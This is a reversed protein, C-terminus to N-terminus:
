GAQSQQRQEHINTVKSDTPLLDLLMDRCKIAENTHDKVVAKIIAPDSMANAAQQIIKERSPVEDTASDLDEPSLDPYIKSVDYKIANVQAQTLTAPQNPFLEYEKGCECTETIPEGLVSMRLRTLMYSAWRMSEARLSGIQRRTLKDPKKSM